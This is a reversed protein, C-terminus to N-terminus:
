ARLLAFRIADEARDDGWFVEGDVVFSPVGFLGLSRAKDTATRYAAEANEGEAAAMVEDANQGAQKLAAQLREPTDPMAEEFWLRYYALAFDFCWGEDAAMVAIRNIREYDDLPYALPFQADLGYFAARREVDRWMYAMKRDNNLFPNGGQEQMLQRISFPRMRFGIEHEAELAKLRSIALYTYTSGISFWFDINKM